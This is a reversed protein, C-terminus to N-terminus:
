RRGRQLSKLRAAVAQAEDTEAGATALFQECYHIATNTDGIRLANGVLGACANFAGPSAQLLEQYDAEASDLRGTRLYAIARNLRAPHTNTVSLALTLAPIANSFDGTLVCLNGKNALAVPDKPDTQLQRNVIKLADSYSQCATFTAVARELVRADGPHTALLAYIIGQAKPRNTLALWARAEMLGVEVENTPGLSRLAPDARIEAAIKLAYEPWPVRNLLEGLLLRTPLDGPVLTKVRELQQCALLLLNASAANLAVYYCYTPEDFPGQSAALQLLSRRRVFQEQFTDSRAVTMQQHALLNSNCQLNVRAPLSDPNLDQALKLCPTAEDWRGSRQLVVGWRDLASSYWGALTRAQGPPPTRLHGLKMLLHVVEPRPLETQSAMRLLPTVATQIAQQWFTRNESLEAATLPPESLTELPHAKELLLGHPQLYFPDLYSGFSAKLFYVRNSHAISTLLQVLKTADLAANPQPIARRAAASATGTGPAPWRAPYRRNLWAHYPASAVYRTDVPVYRAAKGERALEAQLLALRVPDDSLVIAGEPPLSGAALRAYQNLHPANVARIVPLNVLLLGALALGLLLYVLAPVVQCLLRRYIYRRGLAQRATRGFLLLFFGGYYGISLATLYYLRLFPLPLANQQAIQRPSFPPDFVVWLCVLLLVAHSLHLIFAAVDFRDNTGGSVFAGWRVSLLLVPLFSSAALLLAIERHSRFLWLFVYQLNTKDEIAIARLAQWFSLPSTPSFAQVLPLVFFLSAGALGLLAIRLFFRLDASLAPRASEWGSRDIRQLSQPSFFKLRKTRLLAVAFLPLFGVLGWNNAMGIGFLLAARDLWPADSTWRLPDLPSRTSRPYAGSAGSAEKPSRVESNPSRLRHELLCRIVYAFLLLDLMEGSAATAHEWFTLQLGLTVAALVVPVWADPGDLLAQQNQLLLRQQELRDHPLLAVSRALTAVTLAACCATFANLALPVWGAPLWHLPLTLLWLLPHSLSPQWDWGNVRSVLALSSLTVWHNLTALYVVGAAGGVVWPLRDQVFKPEPQPFSEAAM